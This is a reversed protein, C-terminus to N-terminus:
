AIFIRLVDNRSTYVYTQEVETYFLYVILLRGLHYLSQHINIIIDNIHINHLISYFIFNSDNRMSIEKLTENMTIEAM